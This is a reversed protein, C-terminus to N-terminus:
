AAAHSHAHERAAANTAERRQEQAVFAPASPTHFMELDETDHDTVPTLAVDMYKFRDPDEKIRKYIRRIRGYLIALRALKMVSEIWYRPYFIWVPERPLGPRRDRRVKLRFVGSELPHVGELHIASMFWMMLVIANAARGKKAVLRRLITEIHELTYYTKWATLYAQEWEAKSMKSHATCVHNLDYKNLDPDVPVGAQVLKQHDESGPLPTLFFFELVDLPLEKKVIEVDRRISEATDNPFGTIYGCYTIIKAEKWALLMKRYETIKNQRKHAAALNDPNINELGIFVRRVGARACKEIFNPLKHCLTDVQILFGVKLKEVEKLHIIRDLIVEWDKNRAFNDDTIFFSRLGQKVNARIIQEIDDPTRRRSKRGQVNIITCFSCQFPCGRGADFSTVHGATRQARVSSILPIPMGDIGPLDAMFNYLPKLKKAYADQLVMELRGEAEGAFLSIGMAKARHIYADNGGLMSMTGSVHFGGVCVQVGRELFREALDLTRPFQNSQVGVFMVMGDGAEKIMGVLRDPRLRSNTEDFPQIEIEVDDGLVHRQKCDLALGYLAALSNSPITSRLWQIVYGDDDYHSPKLLILCFRKKATTALAPADMTKEFDGGYVVQGTRVTFIRADGAVIRM